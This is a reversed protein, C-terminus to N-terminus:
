IKKEDIFKKLFYKGKETAQVISGQFVALKNIDLYGKVDSSMNFQSNGYNDSKESRGGYSYLSTYLVDLSQKMSNTDKRTGYEINWKDEDGMEQVLKNEEKVKEGKAKVEITELNLQEISHKKKIKEAKFINDCNKELFIRDFYSLGWVIFISSLCPGLLLFFWASDDYMNIIYDIKLQHFKEFLLNQDVFFTTYVSKWNWICWSLIFTGYMISGFRDRLNKKLSELFGDQSTEDM